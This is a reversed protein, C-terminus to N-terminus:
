DRKKKPYLGRVATKAARAPLLFNGDSMFGGADSRTGLVEHSSMGAAPAPVVADESINKARKRQRM